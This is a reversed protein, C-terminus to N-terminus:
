INQEFQQDSIAQERANVKDLIRALDDMGNNFDEPNGNQHFAKAARQVADLLTAIEADTTMGSVRHTLEKTQASDTSALEKFLNKLVRDHQTKFEEWKEPRVLSAARSLKIYDFANNGLTEHLVTQRKVKFGADVQLAAGSSLLPISLSSTASGSGMEQMLRAYQLAFGSEQRAFRLTLSTGKINAHKTIGSLLADSLDDNVPMRTGIDNQKLWNKIGAILNFSFESDSAAQDTTPHLASSQDQNWTIDLFEGEREYGTKKIHRIATQIPENAGQVELPFTGSTIQLSGKRTFPLEAIQARIKPEILPANNFHTEWQQILAATPTDIESDASLTKKLADVLRAHTDIYSHMTKTWSGTYASTRFPRHELLSDRTTRVGQEKEMKIRESIAFRQDNLQLAIGTTGGDSGSTKLTKTDYCAQEYACAATYNNEMALMLKQRITKLGADPTDAGLKALTAKLANMDPQTASDRKNDLLIYSQNALEALWHSADKGRLILNGPLRLVFTATDAKQIAKGTELAMLRPQPKASTTPITHKGETMPQASPAKSSFIVGKACSTEPTNVAHMPSTYGQSRQLIHHTHLQHETRARHADIMQGANQHNRLWQVEEIAPKVQTLHGLLGGAGPKSIKATSLALMAVDASYQIFAEPSAFIKKNLDVFGITKNKSLIGSLLAMVKDVGPVKGTGLALAELNVKGWLGKYNLVEIQNEDNIAVSWQTSMSLEVPKDMKDAVTASLDLNIAAHANEGRPLASWQKRMLEAISEHQLDYEMGKLPLCLCMFLSYHEGSVAPALRALQQNLTQAADLAQARAQAIRDPKDGEANPSAQKATELHVLAQNLTELCELTRKQNGISVGLRTLTQRWLKPDNPEVFTLPISNALRTLREPDTIANTQAPKRPDLTERTLAMEVTAAALMLQNFTGDSMPQEPLATLGELNQVIHMTTPSLHRIAEAWQGSQVEGLRGSLRGQNDQPPITLATAPTANEYQTGVSHLSQALANDAPPTAPPIVRHVLPNSASPPTTLGAPMM